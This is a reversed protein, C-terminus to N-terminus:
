ARTETARVLPPQVTVAFLTLGTAFISKGAQVPLVLVIVCKETPGVPPPAVLIRYLPVTVGFMETDVPTVGRRVVADVM